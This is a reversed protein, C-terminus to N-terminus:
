PETQLTGQVFSSAPVEAGVTYFNYTAQLSTFAAAPYAICNQGSMAYAGTGTFAPGLAWVRQQTPTGCTGNTISTFYPPPCTSRYWEAILQTCGPDVFLSSAFAGGPLCRTVGDAAAIFNCDVNLQSDHLAFLQKSGDAGVYYKLKLRTGSQNGDAMANSVPDTLADVIGKSGSPSADAISGESGQNGSADPSGSSGAGGSGAGSSAVGLPGNAASCAAVIVYITISGGLMKAVENTRMAAGGFGLRADDIPTTVV